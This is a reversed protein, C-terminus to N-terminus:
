QLKRLADAIAREVAYNRIRKEAHGFARVLAPHPEALPQPATPGPDAALAPEADAQPDVDFFVHVLDRSVLGRAVVTNVADANMPIAVHSYELLEWKKFRFGRRRGKDDEISDYEQPRFGISWGGLGAKSLRYSQEGRETDNFRTRSWIADGDIELRVATGIIKDVTYDHDQLVVPNKLYADVQAGGPEVVDGARDVSSTSILHLIERDKDNTAKVVPNVMALKGDPYRSLFHEVAASRIQPVANREILLSDM